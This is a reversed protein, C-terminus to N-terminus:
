RIRVVGDSVRGLALLVFILWQNFM